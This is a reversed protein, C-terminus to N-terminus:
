ADQVSAFEKGIVDRPQLSTLKTPDDLESLTPEVKFTTTNDLTCLHQTSPTHSTLFSHDITAEQDDTNYSHGCYTYKDHMRNIYDWQSSSTTNLDYNSKSTSGIKLDTNMKRRYLQQFDQPDHKLSKHIYSYGTRSIPRRTLPREIYTARIIAVFENLMHVVAQIAMLLHKIAEYVEEDMEEEEMEETEMEEEDEGDEVEEGEIEEEEVKIEESTSSM